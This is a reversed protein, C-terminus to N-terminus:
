GDKSMKLLLLLNKHKIISQKKRDFACKANLKQGCIRSIIVHYNSCKIDSIATGSLNMPMM